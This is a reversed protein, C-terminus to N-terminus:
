GRVPVFDPRHVEHGVGQEITLAEASQGDNIGVGTLAQRDMDVLPDLALLHDGEHIAQEKLAAACRGLDPHVVARFKDRPREVM